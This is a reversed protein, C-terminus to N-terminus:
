YLSTVGGMKKYQDETFDHERRELNTYIVVAGTEQTEERGEEVSKDIKM